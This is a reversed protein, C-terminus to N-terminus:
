SANQSFLEARKKGYRKKLYEVYKKTHKKKLDFCTCDNEDQQSNKDMNNVLIKRGIV